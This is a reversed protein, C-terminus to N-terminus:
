PILFGYDFDNILRIVTRIGIVECTYFLFTRKIYARKGTFIRVFDRGFCIKLNGVNKELIRGGTELLWDGKECILLVFIFTENSILAVEERHFAFSIVVLVAGNEM